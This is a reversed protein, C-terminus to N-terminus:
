NLRPINNLLAQDLNRPLGSQFKLFFPQGSSCVVSDHPYCNTSTLIVTHVLGQLQRQAKTTTKSLVQGVM